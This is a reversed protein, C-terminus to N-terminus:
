ADGAHGCDSWITHHLIISGNADETVFVTKSEEENLSIQRPTLVTPVLPVVPPLVLQNPPTSTDPGTAAVVRFELVQGTTTPDAPPFDVGPIGGGFPEDPGLNLLTVTTGAPVNTFDVIVDAREAPGLLLQGANALTLDVPAALFGGDAGIQWFPVPTDFQLILFRSNCGNLLRFRYRRAEVNQFPWTRGNVVITNGFFEPLWIPSVDSDGTCGAAPIFPIDLYPVTPPTNLGEFFARNDPYSLSGDANFSRDQIVIPIEYYQMGRPAPTRAPGPAPGPLTGIVADDPGGRIIYFGAPGAYVNVRTMGLTHDHYWLTTARQDNAYQFMATGPEWPVENYRTQFEANFDSYKSGVTAYSPPIDSAAPLYWAEPYGDSEEFTHAGHVHTIIPVPGVYVNPDTGRKDRDALGGPPNAWHLTQDVPLLHPLFNGGTDVLDNIWKVRVPKRWKAEITFAPYNFTWPHNVSGYSWVTTMPLGTPLVQQQFQRVAIEYYEINKGAQQKIKGTRPMAPPIILPDTFKPILAPDLPMAGFASGVELLCLAAAVILTLSSTRSLRRKTLM